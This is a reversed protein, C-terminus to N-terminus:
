WLAMGFDAEKQEQQQLDDRLNVLAEIDGLTTRELNETTRRPAKEGEQERKAEDLTDQWTRTHSLVIRKSEKSFEIVKFDATDGIRLETGDIKKMQKQPVFGEVNYALSVLAGGKDVKSAVTGQHVSGLM